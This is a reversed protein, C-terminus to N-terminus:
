RIFNFGGTPRIWTEGADQWISASFGHGNERKPNTINNTAVTALGAATAAAGTGTATVTAATATVAASAVLSGQCGAAQSGIVFILAM